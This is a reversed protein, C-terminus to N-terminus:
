YVPGAANSVTWEGSDLSMGRVATTVGAVRETRRRGANLVVWSWTGIDVKTALGEPVVPYGKTSRAVDRPGDGSMLRRKAAVVEAILMSVM